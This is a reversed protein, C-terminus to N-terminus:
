MLNEHPHHHHDISRSLLVHLQVLNSRPNESITQILLPSETGEKVKTLVDVFYKSRCMYEKKYRYKYRYTYRYKHGKKNRPLHTWPAEGLTQSTDLADALPCGRHFAPTWFPDSAIPRQNLSLGSPFVVKSLM